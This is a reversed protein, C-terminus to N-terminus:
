YAAAELKLGNGMQVFTIYIHYVVCKISFTVLVTVLQTDAVNKIIRVIIKVMSANCSSKLITVTATGCMEWLALLWKKFGSPARLM